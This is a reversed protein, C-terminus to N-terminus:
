QCAGEKLYPNNVKRKNWYNLKPLVYNCIIYIYPTSLLFWVVVVILIIKDKEEM